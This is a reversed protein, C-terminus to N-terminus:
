ESVVENVVALDTQPQVLDANSGLLVAGCVQEGEGGFQGGGDEGSHEADVDLDGNM